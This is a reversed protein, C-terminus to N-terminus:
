RTAPRAPAAPAGVGLYVKLIPDIQPNRKSYELSDAAVASILSEMKQGAVIRPLMDQHKSAASRYQLALFGTMATTIFLIGVLLAIPQNSKM